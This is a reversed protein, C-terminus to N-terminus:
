LYISKLSNSSRKLIPMPPGNVLPVFESTSPLRCDYGLLLNLFGSLTDSNSCVLNRFM